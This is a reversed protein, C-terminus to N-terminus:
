WNAGGTKATSMGRPPWHVLAAVFQLMSPDGWDTAGIIKDALRGDRDVIYTEPFKYTGLRSALAQNPDRLIPYTLSYASAFQELAPLNQDVSVGIVRVGMPRVKAAFKELSPTEAVCPPCWTAWFNLIVVHGRDQRFRFSGQGAAPLSFDPVMDGDALLGAPRGFVVFLVAGSAVAAIGLGIGLKSM